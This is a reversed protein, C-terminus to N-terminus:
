KTLRDKAEEIWQDFTLDDIKNVYVGTADTSADLGIFYFYNAGKVLAIRGLKSIAKNIAARTTM